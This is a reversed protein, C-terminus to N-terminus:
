SQPPPRQFRANGASVSLAHALAIPHRSVFLTVDAFLRQLYRSAARTGAACRALFSAFAALLLAALLATIGQAALGAAGAHAGEAYEIAAFLTLQTLALRPWLALPSREHSTHVLIGARLLSEAWVLVCMAAALALSIELAPQMWAHRGDAATQGSFAYALAHGAVTSPVVAAIWLPLARKVIHINLLFAARENTSGSQTM